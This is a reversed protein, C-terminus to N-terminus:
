VLDTRAPSQTLLSVNLQDLSGTWLRFPGDRGSRSHVVALPVQAKQEDSLSGWLEKLDPEIDGDPDRIVVELNTHGGHISSNNTLADVIENGSEPLTDRVFVVVETLDPRWRELAYRFVPINCASVNSTMLTLLVAVCAVLKAHCKLHTAFRSCNLFVNLLSM